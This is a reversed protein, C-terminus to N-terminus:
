FISLLISLFLSLVFEKFDSTMCEKATWIPLLFVPAKRLIDNFFKSRHLLLRFYNLYQNLFAAVLPCSLLGFQRIYHLELGVFLLHVLCSDIFRYRGLSDCDVHMSRCHSACFDAPIFNIFLTRSQYLQFFYRGSM